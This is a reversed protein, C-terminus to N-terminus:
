LETAFCGRIFIMLERVMVVKEVVSPVLAM